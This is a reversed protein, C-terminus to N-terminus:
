TIEIVFRNSAVSKWQKNKTAFKDVLTLVVGNHEFQREGSELLADVIDDREKYWEKAEALKETLEIGREVLQSLNDPQGQLKQIQAELAEIQEAKTPETPKKSMTTKGKKRVKFFKDDM